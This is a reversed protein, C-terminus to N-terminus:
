PHLNNRVLMLEDAVLPEAGKQYQTLKAGQTALLLTKLDENQNFKAFQAAHLEKKGTYEPDVQVERPRLLTDKIKGTKSGAAKAL